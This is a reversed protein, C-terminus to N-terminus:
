IGQDQYEDFLPSKGEHEWLCQQPCARCVPWLNDFSARAARSLLGTLHDSHQPYYDSVYYQYFIVNKRQGRIYKLVGEKLRRAYYACYLAIQEEGHRERYPELEPSCMIRDYYELAIELLYWNLKTKEGETGGIDYFWEMKIPSNNLIM